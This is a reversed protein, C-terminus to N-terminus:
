YILQDSDESHAWHTALSVLKRWTSLSAESWVPHIGLSIQTKTPCVHWKTPKTMLRSMYLNKLNHVLLSPIKHGQGPLHLLAM